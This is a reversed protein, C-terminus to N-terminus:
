QSRRARDPPELVAVCGSTTNCRLDLRRLIKAKSGTPFAVQYHGAELQETLSELSGDGSVFRVSEVKDPAFVVSFEASGSHKSNKGLHTERAHRLQEEPTETWQGNPLRRIEGLPRDGALKKYRAFIEDHQAKYDSADFRPALPATGALGNPLASFNPLSQAALALEYLHVAEKTKGQKECIEGLHEGVIADQGLLWAARVFSEARSTDGRQFYVWGVTDWLLTLQYTVQLGTDDAAVDNVSRAELESLAKEAYEKALDLGARNEALTYAVDNLKMPDQRDGGQEVAARIHPLAKEPQGSKLYASGLAFQLSPSEADAKVAGELVDVAETYKGEQSLIQGLNLAADHNQPDVKLLRRWEEAASDKQGHMNALAAAALYTRSDEPAIEEEKHFEALAETMKNQIALMLGLNFHAGKYKPDKAIVKEFLEQARSADRQQMAQKGELFLEDIDREGGEDNENELHEDKGPAAASAGSLRMFSFEDDAIARGLKRFGEWESLAVEQQKIVFERSTTLVSDEFVNKTHYEAYPEVLNLPVPPVMSYGPPLEVRARYVIKGVAGLVVPESPKKEKSDKTVELGLQPLPATIQRNDWDGYHQREYDYSLQFPKDMDEPSSIKVNSVDGAFGLRYSFAQATERWQSESVQRFMARVLVETDGGRYSQEVHGTFTDDSGLKGSISFEENQPVPPNAPTRVLMPDKGSPIVLAQKDRLAFLLLGYPAVEPTTDLWTLQNGNPVVTIVHNFQAPSPVEPDLKRLSHILAPWADYGAAKLLAALLTHKDKCDGYGNDLVDDAAHPQYRGIGFDLGVYHYRLSVFYYLSRIKEDDTKLGKTLEAAKAQIAPTVQLPDKQLGAYWRGVDEWSAFTTLQVSPNPPIRKPIENPDTQKVTLNAHNWRYIRRSGEESIDPKFEPSVVKVYKQKPVSIELQEDKVIWNTAFSYEFWFHGPVEPKVTRHRVAYELVDGVGLGKVAIHKEHIDSYLPATRTVEGPMDQINYDPTKVVTGDPKRVRVYDVEVVENASTYTFNLVAFAKVGADALIKVESTLERVASGDNEVAVRTFFHEVVFAEKLGDPSAVPVNEEAKTQASSALCAGLAFLLIVPSKQAM